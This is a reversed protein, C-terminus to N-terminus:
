QQKKPITGISQLDQYEYESGWWGMHKLWGINRNKPYVFLMGMKEFIEKERGALFRNTKRDHLGYMSFKLGKRKAKTAMFVNFDRSGTRHMYLGGFYKNKFTIFIQGHVSKSPSKDGEKLPFDFTANLIDRTKTYTPAHINIELGKLTEFINEVEERDMWVVLDIDNCVPKGRRISGAIECRHVMPTIIGKLEESIISMKELSNQHNKLWEEKSVWKM